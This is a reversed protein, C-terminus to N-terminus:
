WATSPDDREHDIPMPGEHLLPPATVIPDPVTM